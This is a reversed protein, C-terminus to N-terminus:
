PAFRSLCYSTTIGRTCLGGVVIKGDNQIAISQGQDTGGNYDATVLGAVGFSSDINGDTLFRTMSFNSSTTGGVILKGDSQTAMANGFNIGPTSLFSGGTGQFSSDLVGNSLYRLMAFTPFLSATGWAGMVIKGDPLFAAGRIANFIGGLNSVTKGGTGFTSDLTGNSLYRAVALSTVTGGAALIRGDPYPLVTYVRDILTSLTTTVVGFGPDVTGDTNLRGVLFDITTFLSSGGFVAKGDSTLAVANAIHYDTSTLIGTTNFTTDLTGNSLYRAVFFNNSSTNYGGAVLVRGDSQLVIANAGQDLSTIDTTIMGTGGWTTDLEGSPLLRLVAIDNLTAAASTMGAAVLKGDPQIAVAHIRGAAGTGTTHFAWGAVGFTPDLAGSALESSGTSSTGGLPALGKGCSALLLVMACTVAAKGVTTLDSQM